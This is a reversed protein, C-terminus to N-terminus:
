IRVNKDRRRFTLGGFYILVTFLGVSTVTDSNPYRRTLVESPRWCV